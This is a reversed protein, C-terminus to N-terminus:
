NKRVISTFDNCTLGMEGLKMILLYSIATPILVTEDIVARPAMGNTGLAM